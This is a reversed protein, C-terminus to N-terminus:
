RRRTTAAPYEPILSHGPNTFSALEPAGAAIFTIGGVSAVREAGPAVVTRGLARALAADADKVMGAASRAEAAVGPSLRVTALYRSNVSVSAVGATAMLGPQNRRAWDEVCGVILAFSLVPQRAWYEIEVSYADRKLLLRYARHMVQEYDAPHGALWKLHRQMLDAYIGVGSLSRAEEDTPARGFADQSAKVIVAQEAARDGSLQRRHRDVYGALPVQDNTVWRQREDPMPMRGLALVFSAAIREEQVPAQALVAASLCALGVPILLRAPLQTLRM